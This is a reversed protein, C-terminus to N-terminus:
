RSQADVIEGDHWEPEAELLAALELFRGNQEPSTANAWYAERDEFVVVLMYNQPDADLRFVYRALQGTALEMRQGLEALAEVKDARVRVNAITGYM